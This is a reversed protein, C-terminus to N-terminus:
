KRNNNPKGQLRTGQQRDEQISEQNQGEVSDTLWSLCSM